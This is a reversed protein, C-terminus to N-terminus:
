VTSGSANKWVSGLKWIPIGLSTDFYQFGDNLLTVDPRSGTAGSTIIQIQRTAASANKASLAGGMSWDQYLAQGIGPTDVTTPHVYALVLPGTFDSLTVKAVSLPLMYSAVLAGGSDYGDLRIVWKDSGIDPTFTPAADTASSLTAGSGTPVGLSWVYSSHTTGVLSLMAMTGTTLGPQPVAFSATGAGNVTVAGQVASIGSM